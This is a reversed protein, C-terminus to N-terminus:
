LEAIGDNGEEPAEEAPATFPEEAPAPAEMGQEERAKHYDEPAVDDIILQDPDSVDLKKQGLLYDEFLYRAMMTGAVAVYPIVYLLPLVLCCLLYWPLFSLYFGVIQWRRGRTLAVSLRTAEKVTYYYRDCLLLNAAMYRAGFWWTFPLAVLMLVSGIVVLPVGLSRNEWLNAAGIAMMVTPIAEVAIAFLGTKVAVTISMWVSRYWAANDFAWFLEGISNSRGDSLELAWNAAGLTLPAMICLRVLSLLISLAVEYWTVDAGEALWWEMYGGRLLVISVAMTGFFLVLPIFVANLRAARIGSDHMQRTLSRFADATQEETVLTKTTRAGTIGENFAGTIRSNLKRVKRNWHLIRNQFYGTLIAMVPVIAIVALALKWNLALMAAFTGLVYFMAWLIDTFNWALMSSIRNTDSMVRTLLYGVPTVNYFSFSLTQLHHFLAGRMDKGLNMEIHMSNRAFIVVSLAQVVVVALYALAYPLLGTLTDKEIFNQIAYKQFLPLVVDVLACIGNFVLMSIFAGRYPRLFPGLRKWIRWDFSQTYEKEDIAAM